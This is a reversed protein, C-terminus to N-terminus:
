HHVNESNVGCLAYYRSSMRISQLFQLRLFKQTTNRTIDTELPLKKNENKLHLWESLVAVKTLKM